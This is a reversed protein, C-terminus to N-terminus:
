NKGKGKGNGNGNGNGNGKGNGKDKGNGHGKGKGNGTGNSGDDETDAPDHFKGHGRDHPVTVRVSSEASNNSSDLARVRITYVRGIGPGARESRLKVKPTGDIVWDPVTNGDGIGDVPENSEVSIISWTVPSCEDHAEVRVHVDKLKHNPPWLSNPSAIVVDIVPPTTDVVVVETSCSVVNTGDDTVGVTIVNTGLPFSSALSLVVGNTTIGSAVVNTLVSQGGVMWVVMLADGDADSVTTEVVIVGNSASCEVTVPAPCVITPPTAARSVAPALTLALLTAAALLIQNRM